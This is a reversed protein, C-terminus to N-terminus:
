YYSEEQLQVIQGITHISHRLLFSKNGKAYVGYVVPVMYIQNLLLGETNQGTSTYDVSNISIGTKWFNFQSQNITGNICLRRLELGTGQYFSGLPRGVIMCNTIRFNWASELIIGNSWYNSNDSLIHVDNLDVSVNEHASQSSTGYTIYISSSSAGSTTLGLGRISVQYIQDDLGGNDMNFEIGNVNATQKIISVNSGNGVLAIDCQPNSVLTLSGTIVYTGDPFYVTGRGSAQSASIALLIANTDNTSGNGIAGYDKVNYAFNTNARAAYSSTTSSLAYSSTTSNLAYSATVANTASGSLSGTALFGNTSLRAILNGGASFGLDNNGIKYIGTDGDGL